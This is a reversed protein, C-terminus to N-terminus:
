WTRKERSGTCLWFRVGDGFSLLVAAVRHSEVLM